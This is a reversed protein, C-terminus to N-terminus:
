GSTSRPKRGNGVDLGAVVTTGVWSAVVKGAGGMVVNKRNVRTVLEKRYFTAGGLGSGALLPRSPYLCWTVKSKRKM